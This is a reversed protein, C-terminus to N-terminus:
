GTSTAGAPGVVVSVSTNGPCQEIARIAWRGRFGNGELNSEADDKEVEGESLTWGNTSFTRQMDALTAPFTKPSVATIVIRDGSRTEVKTVPYGGPLAARSPYAPPLSVAKADTACAGPTAGGTAAGTPAQTPGQTPPATPGQTPPATPGPAAPAQPQAESRCGGIAMLLSLGSAAALGRRWSIALV